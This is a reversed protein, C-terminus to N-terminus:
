RQQLSAAFAATAHPWNGSSLDAMIDGPKDRSFYIAGAVGLADMRPRLDTLFSVVNSEGHVTDKAFEAFIVPQDQYWSRGRLWTLKPQAMQEFTTTPSHHAFVYPDIAIIDPRDLGAGIADIKATDSYGYWYVFKVNPAKTKVRQQFRNYADVYEGLTPAPSFKNQNLKVEFEHDFTFWVEGPLAALETAWYDIWEDAAGTGIQRMTYPGNVSTVTLVPITGREIRASEYARNITGGGRGKAQYYTSALDPWDGFAAQFREDPKESPNGLYGGLLAGGTPTPSPDPEPAPEPETPDLPAASGGALEEVVADSVASRNGLVKITSPAHQEIATWTSQPVSGARTLVLPHGTRGGLAAGVLADSYMEGNAVYMTSSGQPFEGAIRAAVEYRDAGALRRFTGSTAYGAAQRAATDSVSATGGLVVVEQPKLRQLQAVTSPALAGQPTLLMPMRQHGALAAGALADAYGEGGALYVRQVGSAYKQAMNAATEYRDAGTVREVTGSSAYSRLQEAVAAPVTTEGGVVLIRRSALRALATSTPAPIGDARVILVPANIGGARTAAVMADAHAGAAVVFTVPQGAPYSESAVAAVSVHDPGFIRQVDTQTQASASLPSGVTFTAMILALASLVALLARPV